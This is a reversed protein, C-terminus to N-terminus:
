MAFIIPGGQLSLTKEFIDVTGGTLLDTYLGDPVDIHISCPRGSLPFIGYIKKGPINKESLAADAYKEHVAVIVDHGAGATEARFASRSLAPDKKIASMAAILSSLDPNEPSAATLTIPDSDFLTPHYTARFEEGAYILSTGKAFLIWATWSRLSKEDPLLAAARPRDHNELCRLKCYNDPFLAEQETIRALYEDLSSRGTMAGAQYEYLDYDYCIDFAQYLEGDSLVPIGNKRCETIFSHEVAEALWICGPRVEEVERRAQKWFDLPILPAVDCRFGDVYRAWMKLTGIQYDWLGPDAYDLDIVDWWDGIRNGFSGDAKHYFWEPHEQALVSDPSTHNYVVDLMVQLGAQHAAETLHMFDEMTGLRPDVARYDKIAYPSGLSGKRHVEGSPQVPLLYLIDAGLAKIRPLDEEVARFTGTGHNRTFVQYILKSRLERATDAAM